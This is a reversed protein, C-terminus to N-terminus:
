GEVVEVKLIIGVMLVKVFEVNVFSLVVVLMVILIIYIIDGGESVKVVFVKGEFEVIYVVLEGVKVM